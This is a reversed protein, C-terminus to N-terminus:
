LKCLLFHKWKVTLNANSHQDRPISSFLKIWVLKGVGLLKVWCTEPALHLWKLPEAQTNM